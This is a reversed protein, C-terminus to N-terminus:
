FASISFHHGIMLAAPMVAGHADATATSVIALVYSSNARISRRATAVAEQGGGAVRVARAERRYGGRGPHARSAARGRDVAPRRAGDRDRRRHDPVVAEDGAPGATHIALEIGPPKPTLRSWLASEILLLSFAPTAHHRNGAELLSRFQEIQKVMRHYAVMSTMPASLEAELTGAEVAVQVAIAVDMSGPHVASFGKGGHYACPVAPGLSGVLCALTTVLAANSRLLVFGM